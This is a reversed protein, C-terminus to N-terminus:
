RHSKLPHWIAKTSTPDGLHSSDLQASESNPQFPPQSLAQLRAKGPDDAGGSCVDANAHALVVAHFM